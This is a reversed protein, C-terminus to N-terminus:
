GMTVMTSSQVKDKMEIYIMNHLHLASYVQSQGAAGGKGGKHLIIM